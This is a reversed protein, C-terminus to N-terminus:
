RGGKSPARGEFRLRNHFPDTVEMLKSRSPTREIDPHMTPYDKAIIEGHLDQPGTTCEYVTAGPSGDGHHESLDLVVDGRVIQM